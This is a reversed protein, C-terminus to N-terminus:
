RKFYQKEAMGRWERRRSHGNFLCWFKEIERGHRLFLTGMMRNLFFSRIVESAGTYGVVIQDWRRGRWLSWQGSSTNKRNWVINTEGFSTNYINKYRYGPICACTRKYIGIYLLIEPDCPIQVKFKRPHRWVQKNELTAKILKILITMIKFKALKSLM